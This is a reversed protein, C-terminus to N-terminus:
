SSPSSLYQHFHDSKVLLHLLFSFGSLIGKFGPILIILFDRGTFDQYGPNQYFGTGFFGPISIRSGALAQGFTYFLDSVADKGEIDFIRFLNAVAVMPKCRFLKINTFMEIKVNFIISRSEHGLRYIVTLDYKPFVRKILQALQARNIFGSPFDVQPSVWSLFWMEQRRLHYRSKSFSVKFNNWMQVIEYESFRSKQFSM